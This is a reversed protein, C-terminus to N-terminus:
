HQNVLANYYQSMTGSEDFPPGEKSVAYEREGELQGVCPVFHLLQRCCFLSLSLFFSHKLLGTM